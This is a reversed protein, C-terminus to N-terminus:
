DSKQRMAVIAQPVTSRNAPVKRAIRPPGIVALEDLIIGAISSSPERFLGRQRTGPCNISYAANQSHVSAHDLGNQSQGHRCQAANQKTQKPRPAPHWLMPAIAPGAPADTGAAFDIHSGISARGYGHTGLGLNQCLAHDSEQSLGCQAVALQHLLDFNGVSVGQFRIALFNGDRRVRDDGPLARGGSRRHQQRVLLLLDDQKGIDFDAVRQNIGCGRGGLRLDGASEGIVCDVGSPQRDVVGGDGNRHGLRHGGADVRM